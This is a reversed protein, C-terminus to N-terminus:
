VLEVPDGDAIRAPRVPRANIGPAVRATLRQGGQVYLAHTRDGAVGRRDIDFADVTEGAFSKVPFRRLALVTGSAM